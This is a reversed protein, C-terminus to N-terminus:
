LHSGLSRGPECEGDEEKDDRPRKNDPPENLVDRIAAKLSAQNAYSGKLKFGIAPNQRCIDSSHNLSNKQLKPSNFCYICGTSSTESRAKIRPTNGPTKGGKCEWTWHTKSSPHNACKPIDGDRVESANRLQSSEGISSRAPDTRSREKELTVFTSSASKGGKTPIKEYTQTHYGLVVQSSRTEM